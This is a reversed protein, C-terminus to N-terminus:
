AAERMQEAVQQYKNFYDAFAAELKAQNIPDAAMWADALAKAFSGGRRKMALVTELKTTM